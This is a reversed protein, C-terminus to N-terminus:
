AVSIEREPEAGEIVLGTKNDNLKDLKIQKEPKSGAIEQQRTLCRNPPIYKLDGSDMM